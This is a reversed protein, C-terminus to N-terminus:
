SSTIKLKRGNQPQSRKTKRMAKDRGVTEPMTAQFAVIVAPKRKHEQGMRDIREEDKEKRDAMAQEKTGQTRKTTTTPDIETAKHGMAITPDDRQKKM